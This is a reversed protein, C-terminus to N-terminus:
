PALRTWTLQPAAGSECWVFANQAFATALRQATAIDIGLALVGPEDPWQGSPDSGTAPLWPLGAEALRQVLAGHAQANAADAQRRSGPNAASILAATGAGTRQLLADLRPEPRGIALALPPTAHVIYRAARYAAELGPRGPPTSTM